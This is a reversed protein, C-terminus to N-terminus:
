SWGGGDSETEFAGKTIESIEGYCRIQPTHYLKKGREEDMNKREVPRAKNEFEEKM